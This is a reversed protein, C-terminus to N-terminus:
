DWDVSKMISVMFMDGRGGFNDHLYNYQINHLQTVGGRGGRNKCAKTKREYINEQQAERAM